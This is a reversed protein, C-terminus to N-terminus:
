LLGELDMLKPLSDNLVEDDFRQARARKMQARRSPKIAKRPPEWARRDGSKSRGTTGMAKEYETGRRERCHAKHAAIAATACYHVLAPPYGTEEAIEQLKKGRRVAGGVVRFPEQMAEVVRRPTTQLRAAIDGVRARKDM